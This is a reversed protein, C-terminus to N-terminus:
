AAVCPVKYATGAADYLTLTKDPTITETVANAHTTLKGQVNAFASDDALRAQLTTTSRKLAPYSSTTGGFALRDFNNVASNTLLLSTAAAYGTSGFYQLLPGNNVGGMSIYSGTGAGTVSLYPVALASATATGDKKVSFKSLGGVQLDLLLSAAASATDTINSKLGTFTVGSSNWTQSLDFIPASATVTAGGLSITNRTKNFTFGSDGGLAGGDNFQVHTDSGGPTARAGDEGKLGGYPLSNWATAGDGLKFKDTDTEVGMEAQALIPNAATWEAATGRRFQIHVTM